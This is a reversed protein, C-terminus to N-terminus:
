ISELKQLILKPIAVPKFNLTSVCAIKVHAQVLLQHNVTILQLFTLSGHGIKCLESSINLVDNFRAPKKFDIQMSHVVFICQLDISLQTQEFGLHRLWETRAREMFKLYNSHYVVGGSDTDEYYVRVPWNFPKTNNAAIATKPTIAARAIVTAM